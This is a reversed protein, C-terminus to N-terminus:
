GTFLPRRGAETSGCPLKLLSTRVAGGEFQVRRERVSVLLRPAARSALFGALEVFSHARPVRDDM